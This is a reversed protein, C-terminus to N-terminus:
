DYADKRDVIALIAIANQSQDTTFIVRWDGVRLRWEGARGQLKKIDGGDGGAYRRVASVIRLALGRDSRSIVLLQEVAPLEWVVRRKM